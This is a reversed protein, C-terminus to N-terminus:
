VGSGKRGREREASNKWQKKEGNEGRKQTKKKEVGGTDIRLVKQM